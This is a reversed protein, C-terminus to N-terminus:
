DVQAALRWRARPFWLQKGHAAVLTAIRAKHEGHQREWGTAEEIADLRDGHRYTNTAPYLGYLIELAQMKGNDTLPPVPEEPDVEQGELYGLYDACAYHYVRGDPGDVSNANKGM